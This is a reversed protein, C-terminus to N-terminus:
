PMARKLAELDAEIEAFRTERSLLEALATPVEVPRGIRPEVVDKFKAPHATAVIVAPAFEPRTDLLHAATATHPDFVRGWQGPGAEIVAGIQADDVSVSVINERLKEVDPFLHLVREMNSPDGVDMANALTRQSPRPRWEGSLLYDPVTRNSNTALVIMGIPFGMEKAWIAATANGVNGSPIIFTPNESHQARFRLASYAYYVSQPLLRAINISNATTLRRERRWSADTFAQKVVRQCDDFTGRVAFSHVNDGWCTLQHQQEPSVGGSPFLIGVEIGPRGDLASAVAGGTDGSTAVLVTRPTPSADELHAFCEGLFRAGIDKFAATPGHFLELVAHSPKDIEAPPLVLRVPFSLARACIDPLHEALPDGVFFPALVVAALEALSEGGELSAIDFQPFREPVFLGGDPALGQQMASSFSEAGEGRTSHFKTM